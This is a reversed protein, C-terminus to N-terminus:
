EPSLFELEKNHFNKRTHLSGKPTISKKMLMRITNYKKLYLNSLVVGKLLADKIKLPPTHFYFFEVDKLFVDLTALKNTVQNAEWRCHSVTVKCDIRCIHSKSQQVLLKHEVYWDMSDRLMGAVIVLYPLVLYNNRTTLANCM